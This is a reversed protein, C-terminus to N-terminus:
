KSPNDIEVAQLDRLFTRVIEPRKSLPRLKSAERMKRDWGGQMKIFQPGGPEMVNLDVDDRFVLVPLGHELMAAVTGSKGLLCWPATAVGFDVNQLFESIHAQSQNGFSVIKIRGSLNREAEFLRKEAEVSHAGITLLLLQRGAKIVVEGITVLFDKAVWEPPINGFIGLVCFKNRNFNTVGVKNLEAEMWGSPNEGIPINGFLPLIDANIGCKGLLSQYALNSTHMKLPSARSTFSIIFYKQAVGVLREKIGAERQAGRWLEHFMVHLKRGKFLPALKKSLGYVLGKPHFTYSVFQLSVWEPNFRDLQQRARRIGEPYPLTSPLRLIEFSGGAVQRAASITENVFKDRIAIVVVDHGLQRLEDAFGTTYDGVGDRGPELSSTIFAIKL